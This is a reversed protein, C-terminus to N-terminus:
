RRPVDAILDALREIAQFSEDDVSQPVAEEIIRDSALDSVAALAIEHDAGAFAM